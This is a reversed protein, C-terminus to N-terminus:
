TINYNAVSFQSIEEVQKSFFANDYTDDVLQHLIQSHFSLYRVSESLANAKFEDGLKEFSFQLLTFHDYKSYIDYRNYISDGLSKYQKHQSILNRLKAASYTTYEAVKPYLINNNKVFFPGYTTTIQKCFNEYEDKNYVGNSYDNSVSTVVQHIGDALYSYCIKEVEQELQNEKKAFVHLTSLTDFMAPRLIVYMSFEHSPNTQCEKMLTLLSSTIYHLRTLALRLYNKLYGEIEGGLNSLTVHSHNRLFDVKNILDETM